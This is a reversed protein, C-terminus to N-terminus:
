KRAGRERSGRRVCATSVQSWALVLGGMKAPHIQLTIPANKLASIEESDQQVFADYTHTIEDAVPAEMPVPNRSVPTLSELKVASGRLTVPVYAPSHEVTLIISAPATTRASTPSASISECEVADVLIGQIVSVHHLSVIIPAIAMTVRGGLRGVTTVIDQVHRM